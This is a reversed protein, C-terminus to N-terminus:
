KKNESDKWLKQVREYVNDDIYPTGLSCTPLLMDGALSADTCATDNRWLERVKPDRLNPIEKSISGDLISRYAFMGPMFMDMAEYVDITDAAPNGKIKEVFHYMSYFDSFGHGFDKAIEDFDRTPEYNTPKTRAYEGENEDAHMYLRYVNDRRSDERASELRGKSGYISYWISDRYLGGHLSKVIGGNELTVM